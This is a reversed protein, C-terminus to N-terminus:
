RPSDASPVKLSRALAKQTGSVSIAQWPSLPRAEPKSQEMPATKRPTHPSSTICAHFGCRDSRARSLVAYPFSLGHTKTLVAGNYEMLGSM